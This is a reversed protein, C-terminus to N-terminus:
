LLNNLLRGSGSMAYLFMLVLNSTPMTSWRQATTTLPLKLITVDRSVKSYQLNLVYLKPFMRSQYDDLKSFCLNLFQFNDHKSSSLISM